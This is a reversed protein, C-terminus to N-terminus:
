QEMATIEAKLFKKRCIKEHITTLKFPYIEEYKSAIFMSTAGILHLDSVELKRPTKKFFIDMFKVSRFFCEESMKYSSLVEIRWDVMKARLSPTIM